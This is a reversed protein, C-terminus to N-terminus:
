LLWSWRCCILIRRHLLLILLLDRLINIIIIEFQIIINLPIQSRLSIPFIQNIQFLLL